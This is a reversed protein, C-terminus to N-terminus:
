YFVIFLDKDSSLFTELSGKKRWQSFWTPEMPFNVAGKIHGTRYEWEQRVDVVLLKDPSKISRKWLEDSSILKYGCTQAEIVVDDWNAEKPILARNTFWLVGITAVIAILSFITMKADKM